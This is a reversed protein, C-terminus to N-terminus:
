FYIRLKLFILIERRFLRCLFFAKLVKLFIVKSGLTAAVPGRLFYALKGLGILTWAMKKELELEREFLGDFQGWRSREEVYWVHLGLLAAFSV